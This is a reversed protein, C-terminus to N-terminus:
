VGGLFARRIAPDTALADATGSGAIRGAELVYGRDALKLSAHVNQEVLLMATGDARVHALAEFLEGVVIPALGLSPEDLLLLRPGSMLARAVAVMQQEGGSMLGVVQHRREALRPFLALVTRRREAERDRARAPLAGLRLNEEVTLGTFVGRGEPVAAIGREVVAHAPTGGLSSGSLLISAGPRPAALGAIAKLLSSKGAGNAGLIVVTEGEGVELSVGDLALHAGYSLSLGEVALLPAPRGGGEPM